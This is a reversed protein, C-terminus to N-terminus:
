DITRIRFSGSIHHEELWRSVEPTHMNLSAGTTSSMKMFELVAEPVENSGLKNWENKVSEIHSDFTTFDSVSTPVKSRMVEIKMSVARINEVTKRLDKIKSLVGLLEKNTQPIRHRTYEGWVLGSATSLANRLSDIAAFFQQPKYSASSLIWEPNKKFNSETEDVKALLANAPTVFTPTPISKKRFAELSALHPKISEIATALEQDRTKFGQLQQVQKQLMKKRNALDILEQARESIM